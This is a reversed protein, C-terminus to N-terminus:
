KRDPRPTVDVIATSKATGAPTVEMGIARETEEGLKIHAQIKPLMGAAWNKLAADKGEEIERRFAEADREHWKLVDRMYARDLLNPELTKLHEVQAADKPDLDPVQTANQSVALGRLEDALETHDDLVKAAFQRVEDSLAHDKAWASMTVEALNAQATKVIFRGDLSLTQAGACLAAAAPLVLLKSNM